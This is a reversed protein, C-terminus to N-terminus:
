NLSPCKILIFKSLCIIAAHQDTRYVLSNENMFFIDYLKSIKDIKTKAGKNLINTIDNNCLHYMQEDLPIEQFSLSSISIGSSSSSFNKFNKYLGQKDLVYLMGYYSMCKIGSGQILLNKMHITYNKNSNDYICGTNIKIIKNNNNNNNNYNNNIRTIYRYKSELNDLYKIINNKNNKIVTHDDHNTYIDYDNDTFMNILDNFYSM